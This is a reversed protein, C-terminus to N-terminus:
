AAPITGYVDEVTMYGDYQSSFYLLSPSPEGIGDKEAVKKPIAMRIVVGTIKSVGEQSLRDRLASDAIKM